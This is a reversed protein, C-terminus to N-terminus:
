KKKYGAPCKPNTGTVKRSIKGKICTISKNMEIKSPTKISTSKGQLQEQFFDPITGAVPVADQQGTLKVKIRSTSYSFGTSRFILQTQTSAFLATSVKEQGDVSQVSITARYNLADEGWLCKALQKDIIIEYFGANVSGDKRLHPSSVTYVLENTSPDWEPPSPNAAVANTAVIGPTLTPSGCKQLLSFDVQSIRSKSIAL